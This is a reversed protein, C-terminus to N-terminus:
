ISLKQAANRVKSAMAPIENLPMRHSPGSVSIGAVPEGHQDLVPAAVCRMGTNREENDFAYGLDRIQLMERRLHGPDTITQPTFKELANAAIFAELQDTSYQALLAKGIGSSHMPAQTGPAFFARIAEQTEVQSVFLVQDGRAIGLNATEGTQSMLERMVSRSREIVNTRRLFASGLRFVTAGIAWIQTNPDEQVVNRRAYTMLIRYVTAPSQSLATAIESLTLGDGAALLDLVDLARDLSQITSQDKTGAFNKPRGRRRLTGSM